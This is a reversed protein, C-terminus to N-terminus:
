TIIRRRRVAGARQQEVRRATEEAAAQAAEREALNAAEQRETEAQQQQEQQLHGKRVQQELGLSQIELRRQVSPTRAIGRIATSTPGPVYQHYLDPTPGGEEGVRSQGGFTRKMEQLAEQIAEESFGEPALQLRREWKAEDVDMQQGFEDLRGIQSPVVVNGEVDLWPRVRGQPTPEEYEAELSRLYEVAGLREREELDTVAGEYIAQIDFGGPPTPSVLGEIQAQIEEESPFTALAEKKLEEFTKDTATLLEVEIDALAELALAQTDVSISPLGDVVDAAEPDAAKRKARIGAFFERQKDIPALGAGTPDERDKQVKDVVVGFIRTINAATASPIYTGRHAEPVDGVDRDAEGTDPNTRLWEIVDTPTSADEIMALIHQERVEDELGKLLLRKSEPYWHLSDVFRTYRERATLAESEVREVGPFGELAFASALLGSRVLGPDIEGGFEEIVGLADRHAKSFLRRAEELVWATMAPTDLQDSTVGLQLLRQEVLAIADDQTPMIAYDFDQTTPAVELTFDIQADQWTRFLTSEMISMINPDDLKNPDTSYAARYWEAQEQGVDDGWDLKGTPLLLKDGALVDTVLKDPVDDVSKYAPVRAVFYERIYRKVKEANVYRVQEELTLGSESAV